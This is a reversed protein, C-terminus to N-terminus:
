EFLLVQQVRPVAEVLIISIQKLPLARLVIPFLATNLKVIHSIAVSASTKLNESYGGGKYISLLLSLTENIAFKYGGSVSQAGINEITKCAYFRV